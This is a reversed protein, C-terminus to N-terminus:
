LRWLQDKRAATHDRALLKRDVMHVQKEGAAFAIWGDALYRTVADDLINLGGTYAGMSPM